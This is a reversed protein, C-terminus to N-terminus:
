NRNTTAFKRDICYSDTGNLFIIFTSISLGIDRVALPTIGMSIAIFFLHISLVFASFRTYLGMILFIGLIIEVTGNFIVINNASFFFKTAFSPVFGAWASTNFIQLFGFYLFILAMVIRLFIKPFNERTIM